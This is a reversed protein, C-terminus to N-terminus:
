SGVSPLSTLAQVIASVLLMVLFLTIAVSFATQM